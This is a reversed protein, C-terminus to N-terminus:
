GQGSSSCLLAAIFSALFFWKMAILTIPINRWCDLTGGRPPGAGDLKSLIPGLVFAVLFGVCLNGCLGLPPDQQIQQHHAKRSGLAIIHRVM